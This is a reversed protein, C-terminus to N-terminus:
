LAELLRELVDEVDRVRLEVDGEERDRAVMVVFAVHGCLDSVRLERAPPRVIIKPVGRRVRDVADRRLDDHDVSDRDRAHGVLVIGSALDVRVLRM